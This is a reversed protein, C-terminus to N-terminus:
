EKEGLITKIREKLDPVVESEFWPNKAMWIQNRPSPHVLPFYAPLYNQYHKVRETVKGSVKEQLYYAQAYQGILLTLQIDPLEQLLQPHWKEAFLPEIGRKTYDVNQPDAMIAQKIREIQSM